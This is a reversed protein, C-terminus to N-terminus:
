FPFICFHHQFTQNWVFKSDAMSQNYSGPSTVSTWQGNTLKRYPSAKIDVQQQKSLLAQCATTQQTEFLQVFSFLSLKCQQHIPKAPSHTIVFSSQFFFGGFKQTKIYIIIGNVSTPFSIPPVLKPLDTYDCLSFLFSHIIQKGRSERM